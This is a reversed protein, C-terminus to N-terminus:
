DKIPRVWAPCRHPKKLDVNKLTVPEALLSEGAVAVIKKFRITNSINCEACLILETWTLPCPYFGKCVSCQLIKM